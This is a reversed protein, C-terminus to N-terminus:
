VNYCTLHHAVCSCLKLVTRGTVNRCYCTNVSVASRGCCTQPPKRLALSRGGPHLDTYFITVPTQSDGSAVVPQCVPVDAEFFNVSKPLHCAHFRSLFTGTASCVNSYCLILRGTCSLIAADAPQASLSRVSTATSGRLRTTPSPASPM